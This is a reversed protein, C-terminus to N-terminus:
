ESITCEEILQRLIEKDKATIDTLEFGADYVDALYLSSDLNCWIAKANFMIQNKGQTTWPLVLIMRLNTGTKVPKEGFLGFGDSSMNVVQGVIQNSDRDILGLYYSLHKRKQFRNDPKRSLDVYNGGFPRNM